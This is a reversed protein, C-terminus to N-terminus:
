LPSCSATIHYWRPGCSTKDGECDWFLLLLLLHVGGGCYTTTYNWIIVIMMTVGVLSHCVRGGKWKNIFKGSWMGFQCIYRVVLSLVVCCCFIFAFCFYLLSALGSGAARGSFYEERREELRESCFGFWVYITFLLLFKSELVVSTTYSREESLKVNWTNWQWDIKQFCFSCRGVSKVLLKTDGVGVGVWKFSLRMM